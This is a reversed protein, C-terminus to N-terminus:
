SNELVNVHSKLCFNNKLIKIVHGRTPGSDVYFHEIRVRRKLYLVLYASYSISVLCFVLFDNYTSM